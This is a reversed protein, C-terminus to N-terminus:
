RDIELSVLDGAQQGSARYNVSVPVDRWSCQFDDVGILVAKSRDPVVFTWTKNTSSVKLTASKAGSCEVSLLTGKLYEVKRTDPKPEERPQDVQM